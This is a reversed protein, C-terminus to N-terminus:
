VRLWWVGTCEPLVVQNGHMVTDAFNNGFFFRVLFDAEEPSEFRYDTRIWTHNFGQENEMWNYYAALIDTPPNPVERGTGLTELIIAVGGPRLIRRMEDVAQSIEAQWNEQYWVTAHGFSWGAIAIDASANKIPMQRNDAVVLRLHPYQPTLKEDAVALMHNSIDTALISKVYPAVIGTMRGTGAGFEVVEAGQLPYINQLAALINAQYDERMVLLDYKDAHKQYIEDQAPM